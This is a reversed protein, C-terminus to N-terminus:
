RHASWYAGTFFSILIVIGFALFYYIGIKLREIPHRLKIVTTEARIRGANASMEEAHANKQADNMVIWPKAGVFDSPIGGNNGGNDTLSNM